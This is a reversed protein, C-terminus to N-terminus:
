IHGEHQVTEVKSVTAARELEGSAFKDLSPAAAQDQSISSFQLSFALHKDIGCEEGFLKKAYDNYNM